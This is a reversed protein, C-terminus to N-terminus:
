KVIAMTIDDGIPMKHLRKGLEKEYDSIAKQINPYAKNFYDHVLIVGGESMLPYFLRLGELTPEFLDMDLNSMKILTDEVKVNKLHNANVLSQAQEKSIDYDTFGKFTDFLYCRRDPFLRNIHKAFEGRYVGAEAVAGEMEGKYVRESFRQLFLIRAWVSVEVYTKDLKELPVGLAKLQKPVEDLGMLTGLLVM